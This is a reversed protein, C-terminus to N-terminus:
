QIRNKLLNILSMKIFNGSITQIKRLRDFYKSVYKLILHSYFTGIRIFDSVIKFVKLM